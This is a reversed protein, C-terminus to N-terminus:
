LNGMSGLLTIADDLSGSAGAAAGEARERLAMLMEKNLDVMQGMREALEASQQQVINIRDRTAVETERQQESLVQNTINQIQTDTAMNEASPRELDNGSVTSSGTGVTGGLRDQVWNPLVGIIGNWIGIGFNKAMNVASDIANTYFSVFRDGVDELVGWILRGLSKVGEAAQYGLWQISDGILGVTRTIITVIAQSIGQALLVFAKVTFPILTTFTFVTTKWLLSVGNRLVFGVGSLLASGVVPAFRQVSDFLGDIMLSLGGKMAWKFGDWAMELGSKLMGGIASVAAGVYPRMWQFFAGIGSTLAGFISGILGRSQKSIEGDVDKERKKFISSFARGLLSGMQEGGLFGLVSGIIGGVIAGVPGGMAGITAGLKGGALGGAMGGMLSGTGEANSYDNGALALGGFLLGLPGARKLLGGAIGKPGAAKGAGLLSGFLGKGAAAGKGVLGGLLGKGAGIGALAGLASGFLSKSKGSTTSILDKLHKEMKELITLQEVQNELSDEERGVRDIEDQDTFDPSGLLSGIRDNSDVVANKITEMGFWTRRGFESVESAIANNVTSVANILKPQRESMMHQVNFSQTLVNRITELAAQAKAHVLYIEEQIDLVRESHEDYVVVGRSDTFFSQLIQNTRKAEELTHDVAREQRVKSRDKLVIDKYIAGSIKQFFTVDEGRSRAEEAAQAAARGVAGGTLISTVGRTIAQPEFIRAFLGRRNDLVGTRFFTTQREIAEQVSLDRDRRSQFLRQLLNLEPRNKGASLNANIEELVSVGYARARMEMDYVGFFFKETKAYIDYLAGVIPANFEEPHAFQVNLTTDALQNVLYKSSEIRDKRKAGESEQMASMGHLGVNLDNRRYSSGMPSMDQRYGRGDTDRNNRSESLM